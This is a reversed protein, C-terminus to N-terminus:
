RKASGYNPPVPLVGYSTGRMPPGSAPPRTVFPNVPVSPPPATCGVAVASAIALITVLRM